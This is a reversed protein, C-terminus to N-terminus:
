LCILIWHTRPFYAPVGFDMLIQNFVRKRREKMAMVHPIWRVYWRKQVSGLPAFQPKWFFFCSCSCWEALPPKYPKCGFRNRNLRSVGCICSACYPLATKLVSEPPAKELLVQIARLDLPDNNTNFWGVQINAPSCIHCHIATSFRMMKLLDLYIMSSFYHTAELAKKKHITGSLKKPGTSAM